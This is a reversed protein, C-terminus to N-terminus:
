REEVQEGAEPVAKRSVADDTFAVDAANKMM